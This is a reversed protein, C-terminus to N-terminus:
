RWPRGSFAPASSGPPSGAPPRPRPVPKAAATTLRIPRPLEVSRHARRGDDAGPSPQNEQARLSPPPIEHVAPTPPLCSSRPRVPCPLSPRSASFQKAPGVCTCARTTGHPLLDCPHAAGPGAVATGRRAPAGPDNAPSHNFGPATARVLPTPVPPPSAAGPSRSVPSPRTLGSWPDGEHVAGSWCGPRRWRGGKINTVWRRPQGRYMTLRGRAPRATTASCRSTAPRSSRTPSPGRRGLPCALDRAVRGPLRQLEPPGRVVLEALWPCRRPPGQCRPLSSYRDRQGAPWSGSAVVQIARWDGAAARRRFTMDSWSWRGRRKGYRPWQRTRSWAVFDAQLRAPPAPCTPSRGTVGPGSGWEAPVGRRCPGGPRARSLLPLGAAEKRAAGRATRPQVPNTTMRPLPRPRRSPFQRRASSCGRARGHSRMGISIREVSRLSNVNKETESRTGLGAGAARHSVNVDCPACRARKWGPRRPLVAWRRRDLERLETVYPAPWSPTRAAGTAPCPGPPVVESWPSARRNTTSLALPRAGPSGDPPRLM